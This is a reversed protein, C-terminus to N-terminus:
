FPYENLAKKLERWNPLVGELVQYYRRSHNPEVFHCLEHLLVYDIYAVPGQVLKLSLMMKDPRRASGWRRRTARITVAPWPVGLPEVRPWCVRLRAAYVEKARARYWGELVRRVREPGDQERVRVWLTEGELRVGQPVGQIVQLRYSQGLYLHSAGSVYQRPPPHPQLAFGRLKDVIWPLNRLVFMDVKSQSLKLPVSVCVRQDPYVIVGLTKRRARRLEYTLLVDGCRIQRTSQVARPKIM